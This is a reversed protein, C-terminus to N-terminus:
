YLDAISPYGMKDVKYEGYIYYDETNDLMVAKIRDPPYDGNDYMYTRTYLLGDETLVFIYISPDVRRKEFAWLTEEWEKLMEKIEEINKIENIM